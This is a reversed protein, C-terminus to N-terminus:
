PTTELSLATQRSPAIGARASIHNSLPELITREESGAPALEILAQLLRAFLAHRALGNDDVDGDVRAEDGARWLQMPRHARDILPVPRGGPGEHGLWKAKRRTWPLLKVKGGSSGSGADDEDGTTEEDELDDFLTRDPRSLIDFRDSLERDSLNCSLAYLICAGAPAENLGFDGRHLLYYTTVDDLGSAAEADEDGTLVRGVVFDVVMRRVERLLESVSMLAGPEDAKKVAPHRSFAELAPGTAAWVFDPGRIGADWFERLRHTINARMEALVAANWGPPAPPRKRCVLWVSSALAASAVSRLRMQRETQILWSGDVVFGARVLTAVLTEWASPNKSAFVIVLRGEPKLARHCAKFARAMGDEYSQKSLAKNGDFRSADDILEGNTSRCTSQVSNPVAVRQDSM